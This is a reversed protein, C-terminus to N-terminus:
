MEKLDNTKISEEIRFEWVKVVEMLREGKGSLCVMQSMDSILVLSAQNGRPSTTVPPLVVIFLYFTDYIDCVSVLQRHSGGGECAGVCQCAFASSCVVFMTTLMYCAHAYLCIRPSLILVCLLLLACLCVLAISVCVCLSQTDCCRSAMDPSVPHNIVSQVSPWVPSFFPSSSLQGRDAWCGDRM